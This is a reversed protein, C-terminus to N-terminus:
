ITLSGKYNCTEQRYVYEGNVNDSSKIHSAVNKRNAKDLKKSRKVLRNDRKVSKNHARTALTDLTENVTRLADMSLDGDASEEISNLMQRNFSYVKQMNRGHQQLIKGFRTKEMSETTFTVPMGSINVASEERFVAAYHARRRARNVKKEAKAAKGDSRLWRESDDFRLKSAYVNKAM